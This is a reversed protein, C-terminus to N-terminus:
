DSDLLEVDVRLLTEVFVLEDDLLRVLAEVGLETEESVLLRLSVSVLRESLMLEIVSLWLVREGLVWDVSSVVDLVWLRDVSVSLEDALLRDSDLRDNLLRLLRLECDVDALRTLSRDVAEESLESDSGLM